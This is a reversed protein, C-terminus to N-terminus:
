VMTILEDKRNYYDQILDHAFLILGNRVRLDTEEEAHKLTLKTKYDVYSKYAADVTRYRGLTIPRNNVYCQAKYKRTEKDYFVGPPYKSKSGHTIGTLFNNVKQSLFCCTDPSYIKRGKGLLDKDLQKGQWEYQSAWDMFNSFYKWEDCITVGVAGYSKYSVSSPDLCRYIMKRWKSYLPDNMPTIVDKIGWNSVLRTHTSFAM